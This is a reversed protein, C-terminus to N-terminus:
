DADVFILTESEPVWLDHRPINSGKCRCRVVFPPVRATILESNRRGWFAVQGLETRCVVHPNKGLIPREANTVRFERSQLQSGSPREIPQIPKGQQAVILNYAPKAHALISEVEQVTDEYVREESTILLGMERNTKESFEHLNMSTIIMSSENFYCKAHLHESFRLDLHSLRSLQRKQEDQLDVKGYVLITPVGRREADALREFLLNSIKLYPTVLTLSKHAEAIVREIESAVGHTTLFRIM